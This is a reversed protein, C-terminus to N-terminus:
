EGEVEYAVGLVDLLRLALDYMAQESLPIGSPVGDERDLLLLTRGDDVGGHVQVLKVSDFGAVDRQEVGIEWHVMLDVAVRRPETITREQTM